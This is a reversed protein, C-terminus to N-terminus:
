VATVTPALTLVEGDAIVEDATLSLASIREVSPFGPLGVTILTSASGAPVTATDVRAGMLVARVLDVTLTAVGLPFARGLAMLAASAQAVVNPNTGDTVLTASIAKSHPTAGVVTLAASGLVKVNRAGLGTQVAAIEASLAGGAANAITVKTTGPGLPNDDRIAWRTITPAFRPILYDFSALTWGAGLTAWRGLGRRIYEASTEQDRAAAVLVQAGSGDIQLGAPGSIIKVIQGPTVNGTTGAKRAVLRVTAKYIPASLVVPTTQAAEFITGDSAQVQLTTTNDVVIPAAVSTCLFPVDWAAKSAPIRGKGGATNDLDFWAVAADVWSDGADACTAPSATKALNARVTTEFALARADNEVLARQPAADPWGSV